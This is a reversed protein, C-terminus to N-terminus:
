VALHKVDHDVATLVHVNFSNGDYSWSVAGVCVTDVDLQRRIHLDRVASDLCAIITDGNARASLVQPNFTDSAARTMANPLIKLVIKLLWLYILM